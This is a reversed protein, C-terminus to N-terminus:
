KQALKDKSQLILYEPYDPVTVEEDKWVRANPNMKQFVAVAVAESYKGAPLERQVISSPGDGAKAISKKRPMSCLESFQRNFIAKAEVQAQEYAPKLPERDKGPALWCIIALGLLLVFLMRNLM